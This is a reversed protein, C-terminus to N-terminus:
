VFDDQCVKTDPRRPRDKRRSHRHSTTHSALSPNLSAKMRIMIAGNWATYQTNLGAVDQGRGDVLDGGAIVMNVGQTVMDAAMRQVVPINTYNIPDTAKDLKHDSMYAFKWVPPAATANTSSSCSTISFLAFLAGMMSILICFLKIKKM